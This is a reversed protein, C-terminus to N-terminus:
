QTWMVLLQVHVIFGMKLPLLDVFAKQFLAPSITGFALYESNVQRVERTRIQRYHKWEFGALDFTWSSFCLGLLAGLLCPPDQQGFRGFEPDEAGRANVSKRYEENGRHLKQLYGPLGM